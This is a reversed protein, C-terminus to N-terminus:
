SRVSATRLRAHTSGVHRDGIKRDSRLRRRFSMHFTARAGDSNTATLRGWARVIRCDLEFDGRERIAKELAQQVLSRDEPHIWQMSAPYAAKATEADLGFIRYHEVSWLAQGFCREAGAGPTASDSGKRWIPKVEDSNLKSANANKSKRSCRSIQKRWYRPVSPSTESWHPIHSGSSGDRQLSHPSRAFSGDMRPTSNGISAIPSSGHPAPRGRCHFPVLLTEVFRPKGRLAPFCRDALHM